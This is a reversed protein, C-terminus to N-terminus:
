FGFQFNKQFLYLSISAALPYILIPSLTVKLSPSSPVKIHQKSLFIINEQNQIRIM